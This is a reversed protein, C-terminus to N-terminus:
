FDIYDNEVVDSLVLKVLGSGSLLKHEVQYSQASKTLTIVDDRVIKNRDDYKVWAIASCNKYQSLGLAHINDVVEHRVTIKDSTRVIVAPEGSDNFLCDFNELYQAM